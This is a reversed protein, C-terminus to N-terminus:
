SLGMYVLKEWGVLVIQGGDRSIKNFAGHRGNYGALRDEYAGVALIWAAADDLMGIASRVIMGLQRVADDVSSASDAVPAEYM